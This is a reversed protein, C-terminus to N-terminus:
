LVEKLIRWSKLTNNERTVEIPVGLLKTVDDKKADILLQNVYRMTEAFREDRDVETWKTYDGVKTDIGWMGRFDCCGGSQTDLGISIGFMADQYGGYGFKVYSIKGLSKTEM